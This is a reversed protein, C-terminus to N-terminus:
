PKIPGTTTYLNAVTSWTCGSPQLANNLVVGTASFTWGFYTPHIQWNAWLGGPLADVQLPGFGMAACPVGSGGVPLAWGGRVMGAADASADTPAGLNVNCQNATTSLHGPDPLTGVQIAQGTYPSYVIPDRQMQLVFAAGPPLFLQYLSVSGPPSSRNDVFNFPPCTVRTTSYEAYWSQRNPPFTLASAVEAIAVPSPKTAAASADADAPVDPAAGCGLALIILVALKKM